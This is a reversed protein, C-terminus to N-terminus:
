CCFLKKNLKTTTLDFPKELFTLLTVIKNVYENCIINSNRVSLIVYMPRPSLEHIANQFWPYYICLKSKIKIKKYSVKIKNLKNFSKLSYITMLRLLVVFDHLWFIKRIQFMIRGFKLLRGPLNIVILKKVKTKSYEQIRTPTVENWLILSVVKKWIYHILNLLVNNITCLRKIWGCYIWNRDSYLVRAIECIIACVPFCLVM